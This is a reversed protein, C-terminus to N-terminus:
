GRIDCVMSSKGIRGLVSTATSSDVCAVEIRVDLVDGPNLSTATIEFDKDAMTLSNITLPVQACLDSSIGEEDDSKYCVVDLTLSGDSITTKAGAHFRLRVTEAPDYEPPLAITTRAFLSTSLTKLDRTQLTPSNTAWVGFILGIDDTVSPDPLNTDGADWVRWATMPIVYEALATHNIFSRLFGTVTTGSEIKLDSGVRVGDEFRIQAM